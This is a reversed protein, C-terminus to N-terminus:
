LQFIDLRPSNPTVVSEDMAQPHTIPVVVQPSFFFSESGATNNKPLYSLFVTACTYRSVCVLICSLFKAQLLLISSVVWVYM